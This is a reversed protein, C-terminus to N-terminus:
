LDKLIKFCKNGQYGDTPELVKPKCKELEKYLLNANITKAQEPYKAKFLQYIYQRYV